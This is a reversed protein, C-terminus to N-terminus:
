GVSLGRRSRHSPRACGSDSTRGDHRKCGASNPDNTAMTFRGSVTPRHRRAGAPMVFHRIEQEGAGVFRDIVKTTQQSAHRHKRHIDARLPLASTVRVDGFRRKQGSCVNRQRGTPTSRVLCIPEALGMIFECDIAAQANCAANCALMRRLESNMMRVCLCRM